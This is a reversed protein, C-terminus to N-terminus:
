LKRSHLVGKLPALSVCYSTDHNCDSARFENTHTDSEDYECYEDHECYEYECYDSYSPVTHTVFSVENFPVRGLISTLERSYM